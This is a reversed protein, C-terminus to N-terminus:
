IYKRKSIVDKAKELANKLDGMLDMKFAEDFTVWKFESHERQSLKIQRNAKWDTGQKAIFFTTKYGGPYEYKMIEDVTMCVINTEEYCERRANIKLDENPEVGGGPLCWTNPFLEDGKNRKLLLIENQQSLLVIDVCENKNKM